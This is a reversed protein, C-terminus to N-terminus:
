GGLTLQVRAVQGDSVIVREEVSGLDAHWVVLTYEGAPVNALEFSGSEGVVAWYPNEVVVIASRMFEHVECYVSVIGVEDFSVSKSTGQAYRGLDFRAAGSYSFVNHFFPDENPFSIESGVPVVLVSPTFATDRQAMTPMSGPGATRGPIAGELYVVAPIQQISHTAAAQGPYRSASRRPPRTILTLEGAISGELPAVPADWAGVLLSVLVVILPTGM